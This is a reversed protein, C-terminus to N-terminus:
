APQDHLCQLYILSKLAATETRLRDEGLTFPTAGYQVALEIEEQTFDGEPGIAIVVAPASAARQYLSKKLGERCHALWMLSGNERCFDGFATPPHLRPLYYRRCQKLASVATAFAKDANWSKRETHGTLLPTWADVGLEVAKELLWMMRDMSKLPAVALHISLKQPQPIQSVKKIEASVEKKSVTLLAAELLHGAGDVLEIADGPNLRLVRAAHHAESEPLLVISSIPMDSIFFRTLQEAPKTM